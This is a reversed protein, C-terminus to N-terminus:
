KMMKSVFFKRLQKRKLLDQVIAIFHQHKEWRVNGKECSAKYARSLDWQNKSPVLTDGVSFVFFVNDPNKRHAFSIPDYPLAKEIM